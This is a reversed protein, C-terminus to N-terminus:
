QKKVKKDWDRFATLLITGFGIFGLMVLQFAPIEKELVYIDMIIPVLLSIANYITVIITANGHKFGYQTSAFALFACLLAIWLDWTKTMSGYDRGSSIASTQLLVAGMGGFFGSIIGWVFEHGRYGSNRSILALIILVGLLTLSITSLINYKIGIPKTDEVFIGFLFTAVLIILAGLIEPTRINENLKFHSYVVLSLLGFGGFAVSFSSHPAFPQAMVLFANSGITGITGWMWLRFKKRHEPDKNKERLYELSAGDIAYKQLGKSLNQIINYLLAFTIAVPINIEIM